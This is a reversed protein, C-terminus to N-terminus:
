GKEERKLRRMAQEREQTTMSRQLIGIRTLVDALERRARLEDQRALVLRTIKSYGTEDVLPRWDSASESTSRRM